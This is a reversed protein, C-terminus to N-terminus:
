PTLSCFPRAMTLKSHQIQVTDKNVKAGAKTLNQEGFAVAKDIRNLKEARRVLRKAEDTLKDNLDGFVHDARTSSCHGCLM